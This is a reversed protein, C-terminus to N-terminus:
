TLFDKIKQFLSKKPKAKEKQYIDVKGILEDSLYIDVRGIIKNKSKKNEISLVTKIEKTEPVTLPYYFSKKLYVDGDYFSKDIKFNDKDILLYNKYNEFALDYYYEHTEYEDGDNLTVITLDLNDKSATTVLTKGAAPTYGNKGGTCYKYNTLLKNRNYWLYNKGETKTTYKKTGVIERYVKNQYAYRSLLAMDYATSYNKTDDDLGHPNQFISDKMGIEQAKKNMLKVFEEESGSVAVALAVASDNGSRLLLGYLLDKIKMKEGVEIYINTGYMKLVEEGITIEKEIDTNELTVIATLIKTTSAILKKENMNKKYLVRGTNLDMVVRSTSAM